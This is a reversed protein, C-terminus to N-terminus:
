RVLKRAHGADIAGAAEAEAHAKADAEAQAQTAAALEAEAEEQAKEAAAIKQLAKAQAAAVGHTGAAGSAVLQAAAKEPMKPLPDGEEFVEGDHNVTTLAVLSILKTTAM